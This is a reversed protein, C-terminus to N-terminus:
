SLNKGHRWKLLDYFKDEGCYADIVGSKFEAFKVNDIVKSDLATFLHLDAGQSDTKFWDIYNLINEELVEDLIIFKLKVKKELDCFHRFKFAFLGKYNSM